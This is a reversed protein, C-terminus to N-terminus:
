RNPSKLVVDRRGIRYRDVAVAFTAHRSADASFTRVIRGRGILCGPMVPLPIAVIIPGTPMMPEDPEIVAGSISISQTVGTYWEREDTRRYWVPLQLPFGLPGLASSPYPKSM